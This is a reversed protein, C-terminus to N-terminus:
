SRPTNRTSAPPGTSSPRTRRRRRSRSSRSRRPRSRSPRNPLSTEAPFRGRSDGLGAQALLAGANPGLAGLIQNLLGAKQDPNSQGYLGSVMHEFPPTQDSKFAHSIGEALTGQPVQSAVQDYTSHIDADSAKGTAMQNAFDSLKDLFGM